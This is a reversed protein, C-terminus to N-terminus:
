KPRSYVTTDGIRQAKYATSIRGVSESHGLFLFGGINLSEYFGSLVSRRSEDNFYILCNRCFIFDCGNIDGIENENMLNIQKFSVSKRANISILYKDKRNTFYKELYEPPVDKVARSEYLGVRASKLVETNIDSALIQIDWEEPKDLMEQLIIFLTYPEEGTSCAACWIKIKKRGKQNKVFVPLVDEAFNRLQPFDRFFYTENVTLDNILRYFESSDNSFKLMMFYENLTEMELLEARKEIRKQVFYKKNYEYHLGTQKYILKIFKDFLEDSLIM